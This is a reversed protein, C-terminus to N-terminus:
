GFFGPLERLNNANIRLIPDEALKTSGFILYQRESNIILLRNPALKKVRLRLLTHSLCVLDFFSVLGLSDELDLLVVESFALWYDIVLSFEEEEVFIDGHSAM